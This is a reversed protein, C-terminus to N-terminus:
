ISIIESDIFILETKSYADGLFLNLIVLCLDFILDLTDEGSIILFGRKRVLTM